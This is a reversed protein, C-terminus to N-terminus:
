PNMIKILQAKVDKEGSHVYKCIFVPKIANGQANFTTPGTVGPYNKIAYLQRRFNTKAGKAEVMATIVIGATDYGQAASMTPEQRYKNKYEDIFKKVQPVPYDPAYMTSFFYGTLQRKLLRPLIPHNWGDGGFFVRDYGLDKGNLIMRIVDEPYGPLLIGDVKSGIIKILQSKFQPESSNYGQKVIVKGGAKEFAAGVSLGLMRSYVSDEDIDLMIGIRKLGSEFAYKGLAAGQYKDSFCARFVYPNRETILDNTATPTILTTESKFAENKLFLTNTSTYAGIIVTPQYKKVLARFAFLSGKTTSCNDATVLRVKKGGINKGSANFENFKLEIGQKIAKGFVSYDGSLPLVAGITIINPDAPPLKDAIQPGTSCGTLLAVILSFFSIFIKM